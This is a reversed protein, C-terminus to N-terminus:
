HNMKKVFRLKSGCLQTGLVRLSVILYELNFYDIIKMVNEIKNVEYLVQPYVEFGACCMSSIQTHPYFFLFHTLSVEKYKTYKNNEIGRLFSLLTGGYFFQPSSLKLANTRTM